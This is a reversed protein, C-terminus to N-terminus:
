ETAESASAFRKGIGEDMLPRRISKSLEPTRIPDITGSPSEKQPIANTLV